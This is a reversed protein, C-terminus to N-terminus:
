SAAKRSGKWSRQQFSIVPLAWVNGAGECRGCGYWVGFGILRDLSLSATCPRDSVELRLADFSSTVDTTVVGPTEMLRSLTRAPQCTNSLYESFTNSAFSLLNKQYSRNSAEIINRATENTYFWTSFAMSATLVSLLLQM